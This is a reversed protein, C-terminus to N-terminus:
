ASRGPIGPRYSGAEKASMGNRDSQKRRRARVGNTRVESWTLGNGLRWATTESCGLREAIDKWRLGQARLATIEAPVPKSGVPASAVPRSGVFDSGHMLKRFTKRSIGLAQEVDVHRFGLVLLDEVDKRSVSIAAARRM